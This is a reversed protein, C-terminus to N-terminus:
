TSIERRALFHRMNVCGQTNTLKESFPVNCSQFMGVNGSGAGLSRNRKGLILDTRFFVWKESTSKRVIAAVVSSLFIGPFAKWSHM